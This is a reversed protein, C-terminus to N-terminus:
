SIKEEQFIRSGGIHLLLNSIREGTSYKIWDRAKTYLAEKVPGFIKLELSLINLVTNLAFHVMSISVEVNDKM